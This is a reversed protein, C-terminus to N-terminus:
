WQVTNPKVLKEDPECVVSVCHFCLDFFYSVNPNFTASLYAKAAVLFKSKPHLQLGQEVLWKPIM